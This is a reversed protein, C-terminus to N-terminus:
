YHRLGRLKIRRIDWWQNALTPHQESEFEKSAPVFEEEAQMNGQFTRPPGLLCMIRKLLTECGETGGYKGPNVEQFSHERQDSAPVQTM